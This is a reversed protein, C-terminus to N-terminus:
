EANNQGNAGNAGHDTGAAEADAPVTESAAPKDNADGEPDAEGEAEPDEPAKFGPPPEDMEVEGEEDMDEIEDEGGEFGEDMLIMENLDESVTDGPQVNKPPQRMILKSGNKLGSDRFLINHLEDYDFVRDSEASYLQNGRQKFMKFFSVRHELTDMTEEPSVEVNNIYGAGRGDVSLELNFYVEVELRGGNGLGLTDCSAMDGSLLERENSPQDEGDGNEEPKEVPAPNESPMM